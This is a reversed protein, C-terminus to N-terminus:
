RESIVSSQHTSSGILRICKVTGQLELWCLEVTYLLHWILKKYKTHAPFKKKIEIQNQHLKKTSKTKMFGKM